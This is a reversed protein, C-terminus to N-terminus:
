SLRKDDFGHKIAEGILKLYTQGQTLILCNKVIEKGYNAKDNNLMLLFESNRFVYLHIKPMSLEAHLNLEAYVRKPDCSDEIIVVVDIDSEPNQTGKAYSGTILTIHSKFPIKDITAQMDNYPIQKKSWGIHELIYGLSSIAKGSKFNPAYLIANGIREETLIGEKVSKKLSEFVFSVSKKKSAKKVQKFTLKEWPREVFPKLIDYEKNLM